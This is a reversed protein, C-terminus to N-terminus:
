GWGNGAASSVAYIDAPLRKRAAREGLEKALRMGEEESLLCLRERRPIGLADCVELVQERHLGLMKARVGIDVSTAVSIM